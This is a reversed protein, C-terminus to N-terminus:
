KKFTYARLYKGYDELEQETCYETHKIGTAEKYHLGFRILHSRLENNVITIWMDSVGLTKAIKNHSLGERMLRFIELLNTGKSTMSRNRRRKLNYYKNRGELYKEFLNLDLNLGDSLDSVENRLILNEYDVHLISEIQIVPEDFDKHLSLTSIDEQLCRQKVKYENSKYKARIIKEISQYLYTSIKTKSSHNPNFKESVLKRGIILKCVDQSVDDFAIIGFRICISKTMKKIESWNQKIFLADDPLYIM